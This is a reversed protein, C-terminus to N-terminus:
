RNIKIYASLEKPEAKKYLRRIKGMRSAEYRGEYGPIEKWENVLTKEGKM